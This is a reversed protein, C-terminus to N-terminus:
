SDSGEAAVERVVADFVELFRAVERTGIILPPLLRVVRPDASGGVIIGRELLRSVLGGVDFGMVVGLMLGAGRVECVGPVRELGEQLRAGQREANEVLGQDRLVELTARAAAVAIPGGGFTTGYQGPSITEAVVRMMIVAGIPLGSALGKALVMMHPKVGLLDAAFPRGTRGLGTQIEDFILVSGRSHCLEELRQFYKRDAMRVGGMGQIPEIIVAAAESTL